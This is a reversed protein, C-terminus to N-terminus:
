VPEGAEDASERWSLVTWGAIGSGESADVKALKGTVPIKLDLHKGQVLQGYSVSKGGGSVIGDVVSLSSVPLGLQTAALGLLAQYTYAAVKRVNAM